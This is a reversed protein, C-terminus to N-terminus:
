PCPYVPGIAASVGVLPVINNRDFLSDQSTYVKENYEDLNELSWFFVSPVDIQSQESVIFCSVVQSPSGEPAINVDRFGICIGFPSVLSVIDGSYVEPDTTGTEYEYTTHPMWEGSSAREHLSCEFLTASMVDPVPMEGPEALYVQRSCTATKFISYQSGNNPITLYPRGGGLSAPNSAVAANVGGITAWPDNVYVRMSGNTNRIFDLGGIGFVPIPASRNATSDFRPQTFPAPVAYEAGSGERFRLEYVTAAAIGVAGSLNTANPLVKGSGGAGETERTFIQHIGGASNSAGHV